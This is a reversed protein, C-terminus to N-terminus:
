YGSPASRPPSASSARTSSATRTSPPRPPRSCTSRRASRRPARLPQPQPRRRPPPQARRRRRAGGPHRRGVRRPLLPRPRRARGQGAFTFYLCGGDPYSHSQHASAALTGTSRRQARRHHRRLHRAPRALPRRGGDHRRRLGALDAGRPRRRRQPARALPRRARRGRPPADRASRPSSSWRRTSSRGPRGRRARAAPGPRRDQLHPRGRRRRLPAAGGAHAGRQLIRRLRRPRGRLVAFGYAARREHRPRRTCGCAPAPSSASRARRASSSSTSTPASRPAPRAAPPSRAATPSPWTSASCWTRSRGTAPRSSAPRRPLRALRRRDVPRGVAALARAHRRARHAADHELHDGFTGPLSTSCSRPRRRRRRHRHAGCLDLVVGGHVPVSAGCVGSRGAAATVPIRAENCVACCRPSRTPPPRAAVVAAAKAAVQGDLAWIMAQPWWDRSAEGVVDGDVTVHACIPSSGTSCPTPCRCSRPRRPPRHRGAGGDRLAIPPPRARRARRRAPRAADSM